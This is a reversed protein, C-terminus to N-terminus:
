YWVCHHQWVCVCVCRVGCHMGLSDNLQQKQVPLLGQAAFEVSGLRAARKRGGQVVTGRVGGGPVLQFDEVDLSLAAQVAPQNALDQIARSIPHTARQSLAVAVAVVGATAPDIEMASGRAVTPPLQPSSPDVVLTCSLAGSTLTGTKDLAVVRCTALADLIAAGKLLVGRTCSVIHPLSQCCPHSLFGCCVRICTYIPAYRQTVAAIASTYALPVMVLACPSAVTLIGMARYWAGRQAATSLLPVGNVLMAVLALLTGAIVAQQPMTAHQAHQAHQIRREVCVCVCVRILLCVCRATARGLTM